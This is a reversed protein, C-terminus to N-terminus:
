DLFLLFFLLIALVVEVVVEFVVEVLVTLLIAAAKNREMATELMSPNAGAIGVLVELDAMDDDVDVVLGAKTPLLLLKSLETAAGAIIM